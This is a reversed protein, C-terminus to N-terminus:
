QERFIWILGNIRSSRLFYSFGVGEAYILGSASKIVLLLRPLIYIRLGIV